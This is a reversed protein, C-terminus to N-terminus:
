ASYTQRKTTGKAQLCAQDGYYNDQYNCQCQGAQKVDTIKIDRKVIKM